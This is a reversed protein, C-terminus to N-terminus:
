LIYESKIQFQNQFNLLQNLILIIKLLKKKGSEKKLNETDKM